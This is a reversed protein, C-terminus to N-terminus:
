QPAEVRFETGCDPCKYDDCCGEYCEGTSVANPHVYRPGVALPKEATRCDIRGLPDQAEQESM